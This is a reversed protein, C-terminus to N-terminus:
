AVTYRRLIFNFAFNSLSECCKPKLRQIACLPGGGNILTLFYHDMPPSGWSCFWRVKLELKPQNSGAGGYWPHQHDLPAGAGGGGDAAEGHLLTM